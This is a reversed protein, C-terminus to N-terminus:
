YRVRALFPQWQGTTNVMVHPGVTLTDNFSGLLVTSGDAGVALRDVSQGAADGLLARFLVDGDPALRALFIDTAGASVLPDGGLDLPDSMEGAVVVERAGNVGFAPDYRLPFVRHWAYGGAEDFRALTKVYRTDSGVPGGGFDTIGLVSGQLVVGGLEDLENEVAFVGGYEWYSEFRWVEEGAPTLKMALLCNPNFAATDIPEISVAASVAIEGAENADVSRMTDFWSSGIQKSWLPAGTAGAYKVVFGDRTNGEDRMDESVLPGTGFDVEGDFEGLLIVDGAGDVAIDKMTMSYDVGFLYAHESYYIQHWLPEGEPDLKALFSYSRDEPGSLFVDDGLTITGSWDGHIFINGAADTEIGRVWADAGLAKFFLLEGNADYKVLFSQDDQPPTIPGEDIGVPGAGFDVEGRFRGAALTNAAPDMAIAM